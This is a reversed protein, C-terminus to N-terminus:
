AKNLIQNEVESMYKYALNIYYEYAAPSKSVLEKFKKLKQQPLCGSHYDQWQTWKLGNFHVISADKNIGYSPNWNYGNDLFTVKGRYFLSYAVQDSLYLNKKLYPVNPRRCGNGNLHVFKIFEPLTRLLSRINM